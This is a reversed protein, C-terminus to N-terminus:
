RRTLRQHETNVYDITNRVFDTIGTARKMRDAMSLVNGNMMKEALFKGTKPTFLTGGQEDKLTRTIAIRNMEALFYACYNGPMSYLHPPTTYAASPQITSTDVVDPLTLKRVDYALKRAHDNGRVHMGIEPFSTGIINYLANLTHFLDWKALLKKNGNTFQLTEHFYQLAEPDSFGREHFMSFTEATPTAEGVFAPSAVVAGRSFAGHLVHGGEHAMCTLRKRHTGEFTPPNYYFLSGTSLRGLPSMAAGPRKGERTEIDMYVNPNKPDFLSGVFGLDYGLQGFFDLTMGLLQHPDTPISLRALPDKTNTLYKVDWPNITEPGILERFLKNCTDKTGEVVKRMMEMISTPSATENILAKVDSINTFDPHGTHKGMAQVIDNTLQLQGHLAAETAELRAGLSSYLEGRKKSDPNDALFSAVESPKLEQGGVPFRAAKYVTNTNIMAATITEDSEVAVALLAGSRLMVERQTLEDRSEDALVSLRQVLQAYKGDPTTLGQLLRLAQKGQEVRDNTIGSYLTTVQRLEDEERAASLEEDVRGILTEVDRQSMRRIEQPTLREELVSPGVLHDLGWKGVELPGYTRAM